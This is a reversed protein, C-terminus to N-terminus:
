ALKAVKVTRKKTRKTDSVLKMQQPTLYKRLDTIGVKALKLFLGPEIDNLLSEIFTLEGDKLKTENGKAGLEVAYKEGAVVLTEEPKLIEDGKAAITKNLEEHRKIKTSISKLFDDLAGLEDVMAKIEEMTADHSGAKAKAKAKTAAKPKEVFKVAM